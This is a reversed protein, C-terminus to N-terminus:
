GLEESKRNKMGVIAEFGGSESKRTHDDISICLGFLYAVLMLRTEKEELRHKASDQQIWENMDQSSEVGTFYDM